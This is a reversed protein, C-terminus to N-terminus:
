ATVGAAALFRAPDFHPNQSEFYQALDRALNELGDNKDSGGALCDTCRCMQAKILAAIAEFDQKTVGM